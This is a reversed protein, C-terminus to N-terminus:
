SLRSGHKQKGVAAPLWVTVIMTPPVGEETGEGDSYDVLSIFIKEGSVGVVKGIRYDSM